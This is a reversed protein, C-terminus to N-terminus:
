AGVGHAAFVQLMILLDAGAHFLASAMVSGTRQILYGWLVALCFTVALFPAVDPQYSVRAHALTFATATLLNAPLKGVLPALRELFLGRFLVEELLGNALSFVLLWPWLRLLASVPMGGGVGQAFALGGLLTLAGLGVLLGPMLNGRRLCVSAPREGVLRLVLLITGMSLVASSLKATTLGQATDVPLRVLENGLGSWRWSVFLALAAAFTAYLAKWLAGEPSTRRLLLAPLLLAVATALRLATEPRDPIAESWTIAVFYVSLLLALLAGSRGARVVLPAGVPTAACVSRRVGRPQEAARRVTGGGERGPTSM